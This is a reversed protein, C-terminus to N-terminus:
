RAVGVHQALFQLTRQWAQKADRERYVDPRTNNFFAHPCPYTVVEGPKGFKALGQRLLDVEQKTVWDDQEGYHYLVPCLLYELTESPPVKGYFIVAAKLDSNHTAMTLALTGGMCFGVVGVSLPEVFPQRKLYQVSANLDRLALQSSLANMLKAAEAPDSTVKNGLRSYLDPALAVYGESAFRRALDKIHDNLGWWEHIIVVAPAPARSAPHALFAKITVQDSLFQVTESAVTTMAGTGSASPSM